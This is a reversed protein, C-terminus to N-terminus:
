AKKRCEAIFTDVDQQLQDLNAQRITLWDRLAAFDPRAVLEAV